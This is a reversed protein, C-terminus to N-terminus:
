FRRVPVSGAMVPSGESSRGVPNASRALYFRVTPDTLARVVLPASERPSRLSPSLILHALPTTGRRERVRAVDDGHRFSAPSGLALSM